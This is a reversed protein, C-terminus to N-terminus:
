FTPPCSSLQRNFKLVHPGSHDFLRSPHKRCGRASQLGPTCWRGPLYTSVLFSTSTLRNAPFCRPSWIHLLSTSVTPFPSLPSSLSLLKSMKVRGCTSYIAPSVSSYLGPLGAQHESIVWLPPTPTPLPLSWRSRSHTYNHSIPTRPHCFGVCCQM